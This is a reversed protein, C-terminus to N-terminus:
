KCMQVKDPNTFNHFFKQTENSITNAFFNQQFFKTFILTCVRVYSACIVCMVKVQENKLTLQSNTKQLAKM